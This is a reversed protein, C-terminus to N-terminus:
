YQLIVIQRLIGYFINLAFQKDIYINNQHLYYQIYVIIMNLEQTTKFIEISKTIFFKLQEYLNQEDLKIKRIFELAFEWVVLYKVYDPNIKVIYHDKFIKNKELIFYETEWACEFSHYLIFNIANEINFKQGGTFKSGFSRNNGLLLGNSNETLNFNIQKDQSKSSDNEIILPNNTPKSYDNIVSIENETKDGSMDHNLFNYLKLINKLYINTDFNDKKLKTFEYKSLNEVNYVYKYLYDTIYKKYLPKLSEDTLSYYTLEYIFKEHMKKKIFPNIDLYNILDFIDVCTNLKNQQKTNSNVKINSHQKINYSGIIQNTLKNLNLNNDSNFIKVNIEPEDNYSIKSWQSKGINLNTTDPKSFAAGGSSPILIIPPYNNICNLKNQYCENLDFSELEMKHTSIDGYIFFIHGIQDHRTIKIGNILKHKNVMFINNRFENYTTAHDSFKKIMTQIISNNKSSNQMKILFDYVNLLKLIKGYGYKHINITLYDNLYNRIKDKDTQVLSTIENVFNARNTFKLENYSTIYNNNNGFIIFLETLDLTTIKEIEKTKILCYIDTLVVIENKINKKIIWTNLGNLVINTIIFVDNFQHDNKFINTIIVQLDENTEINFNNTEDVSIKNDSFLACSRSTSKYFSTTHDLSIARIDKDKIDINKTTSLPIGFFMNYFSEDYEYTHGYIKIISYLKLNLTTFINTHSYNILTQTSADCYTKYTSTECLKYNEVSKKRVPTTSNSTSSKPKVIETQNYLIKYENSDYDYCNFFVSKYDILYDFFRSHKKDYINSPEHELLFEMDNFKYFLKLCIFLNSQIKSILNDNTRDCFENVLLNMMAYFFPNFACSNIDHNGLIWYVRAGKYALYLIFIITLYLDNNAYEVLKKNFKTVNSKDTGTSNFKSRIIFENNFPDYVDGLFIIDYCGIYNTNTKNVFNIQKENFVKIIPFIDGHVDGFILCNNKKNELFLDDKYTNNKYYGYGLYIGQLKQHYKRLEEIIPNLTNSKDTSTYNFNQTLVENIYYRFIKKSEGNIKGNFSKIYDYTQINKDSNIIKFGLLYKYHFFEEDSLKSKEEDSLNLSKQNEIIPTISKLKNLFTIIDDDELINDPPKDYVIDFIHNDSIDNINIINDPNDILTKMSQLLSNYKTVYSPDCKIYYNIFQTINQFCTNLNNYNFRIM